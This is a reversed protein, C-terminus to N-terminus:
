GGWHPGVLPKQNTASLERVRDLFKVLFVIPNGRTSLHERVQPSLQSMRYQSQDQPTRKRVGMFMAAADLTPIADPSTPKKTEEEVRCIVFLLEHM